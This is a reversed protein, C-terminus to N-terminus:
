KRKLHLLLVQTATYAVADMTYWSKMAYMLEGSRSSCTFSFNKQLIANVHSNIDLLKWYSVIHVRGIRFMWMSSWSSICYTAQNGKRYIFIWQVLISFVGLLRHGKLAGSKTKQKVMLEPRELTFTSMFSASIRPTPSTRTHNKLLHHWTVMCCGVVYDTDWIESRRLLRQLLTVM